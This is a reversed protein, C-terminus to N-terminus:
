ILDGNLKDFMRVKGGVDKAKEHAQKDNRFQKAQFVYPSFVPFRKEGYEYTKDGVYFENGKQVIMRCTIDTM